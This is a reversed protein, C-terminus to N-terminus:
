AAPPRRRQAPVISAGAFLAAVGAFGTGLRWCWTQAAYVWPPDAGPVGSVLLAGVLGLATGFAALVASRAFRAHRSTPPREARHTGDTCQLLRRRVAASGLAACALAFAPSWVSTPALAAALAGLAAAAFGIKCLSEASLFRTRQPSRTGNM